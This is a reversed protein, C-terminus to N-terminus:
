KNGDGFIVSSLTDGARIKASDIIHAYRESVTAPKDGIFAATTVIDTGNAVLISAVAHRFAHPNLHPFNPNETQLRDGMRNLHQTIIDPNMPGGYENTFLYGSDHWLDGYWEPQEGRWKLYDHLIKDMQPTIPLQRPKRKKPYPKEYVGNKPDYMVCSCITITKSAFDIASLKIGACEGRRIGYLMLVHILAYWKPSEKELAQRILTLDAPQYYNPMPPDAVPPTADRCPNFTILHKHIAHEMITSIVHHHELVTKRSLGGGTKKNQGPKLLIAYFDDLMDGTIEDVPVDGLYPNIRTDLMDQYRNLTSKEKGTREKIEMVKASFDRFSICKPEAAKAAEEKELRIKEECEEEFHVTERQILTEIQRANLEPPVRVTKLFPPLQGGSENRGHYVHIRFSILQGAKNHRKEVSAM